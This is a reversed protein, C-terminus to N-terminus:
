LDKVIEVRNVYYNRPKLLRAWAPRSSICAFDLGNHRGWQEAQEILFLIDAVNGAAVMGHLERAGAPYLKVTVIIVAQGTGFALMDGALLQADMWGISYCRPDLLEAIEDRHRQYADWAQPPLEIMASDM